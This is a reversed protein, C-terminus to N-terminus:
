IFSPKSNLIRFFFPRDNSAEGTFDFEGYSQVQSGAIAGGMGIVLRNEFFVMSNIPFLFEDVGSSSGDGRGPLGAPTNNLGMLGVHFPNDSSPIAVLIEAKGTKTGADFSEVVAYGTTSTGIVKILAGKHLILGTASSVSFSKGTGVSPDSFSITITPFLDRYPTALWYFSSGKGQKIKDPLTSGSAFSYDIKDVPIARLSVASWWTLIKASFSIPDITIVCPVSNPSYLILSNEIQLYKASRLEALSFGS